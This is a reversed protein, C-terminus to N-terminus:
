KLPYQKIGRDTDALWISNGNVGWVFSYRSYYDIKTSFILDFSTARLDSSYLYVTAEPDRGSRVFSPMLDHLKQALKPERVFAWIVHKGSPDPEASYLEDFAVPVKVSLNSFVLSRNTLSLVFIGVSQKGPSTAAVYEGGEFPSSTFHNFNTPLFNTFAMEGVPDGIIRVGSNQEDSYLWGHECATASGEFPHKLDMQFDAWQFASFKNENTKWQFTLPGSNTSPRFVTLVINGKWGSVRIWNTLADRYKGANKLPKALYSGDSIEDSKLDYIRWQEMPKPNITRYEYFLIQSASLPYGGSIEVAQAVTRSNLSLIAEKEKKADQRDSWYISAIFLGIALASIGFLFYFLERGSLMGFIPKDGSEKQKV